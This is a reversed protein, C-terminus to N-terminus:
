KAQGNSPRDKPSLPVARVADGARVGLAIMIDAPLHLLGGAPEARALMARFDGFRTNAVLWTKRPSAEAAKAHDEAAQFVRSAAVAGIADTECEVAPGADFIDIHEDYHFGEEELMAQAPRTLEHTKGIADQADKSLLSSYLPHKPMLEAVFSKKGVGTLYDARSFEMSFFHRGVGDWFPSHGKTDSIGRLEAITKKAFQERFQAIFLLRCKSLLSGNKGGRYHPDLFLSCLETQGTYDNSLFLTPTRTYIGLEESAHVTLGVRYSYFAQRMGVAAVIACTGAIAGTASDELIFMFMTDAREASGAFSALSAEIRKRLQAEDAPLTTMGVGTKTALALLAALDVRAIPRIILMAPM